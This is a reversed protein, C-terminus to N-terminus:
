QMKIIKDFAFGCLMFQMTFFMSTKFLIIAADILEFSIFFYNHVLLIIIGACFMFNSFLFGNKIIHVIRKDINKITTFLERFFNNAKIM